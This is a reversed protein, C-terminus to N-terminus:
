QVPAQFGHTFSCSDALVFECQLGKRPMAYQVNSTCRHMALLNGSM